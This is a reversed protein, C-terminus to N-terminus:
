RKNWYIWVPKVKRTTGKQHRSLWSTGSLIWSPQLVTHTCTHTHTHMHPTSVTVASILTIIICSTDVTTGVVMVCICMLVTHILTNSIVDVNDFV